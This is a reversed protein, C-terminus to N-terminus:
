NRSLLATAEEVSKPKRMQLVGFSYESIKRLITVGHTYGLEGQPCIYSFCKTFRQSLDPDIRVEGQGQCESCGESSDEGLCSFCEEYEQIVQGWIPISGSAALFYEGVEFARQWDQTRADAVTKDLQIQHFAEEISDFSRVSM